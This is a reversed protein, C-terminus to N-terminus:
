LSLGAKQHLAQLGEPENENDDSRKGAQRCAKFDRDSRNERSGSLLPSSKERGGGSEDVLHLASANWGGGLAKVLLVSASMRRGLINIATIQNNLAITQAVIVNLYSVTGARYQNTTVTVSQV